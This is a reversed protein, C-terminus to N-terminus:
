VRKALTPPLDSRRQVIRFRLRVTVAPRDAPWVHDDRRQLRMAAALKLFTEGCSLRPLFRTLHERRRNTRWQLRSIRDSGDMVKTNCTTYRLSSVVIEAVRCGCHPEGLADIRARDHLREAVRLNLESQVRTRMHQGRQLNIGCRHIRDQITPRPPLRGHVNRM